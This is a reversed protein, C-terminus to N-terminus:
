DGEEQVLVSIWGREAFQVPAVWKSYMLNMAVPMLKNTKLHAALASSPFQYTKQGGCEIFTQNTDTSLAVCVHPLDHNSFVALSQGVFFQGKLVLNEDSATGKVASTLAEDPNRSRYVSRWGKSNDNCQIVATRGLPNNKTLSICIKADAVALSAASWSLLSLVLISKKM